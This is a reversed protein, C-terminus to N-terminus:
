IGTWHFVMKEAEEFQDDRSLVFGHSSDTERRAM